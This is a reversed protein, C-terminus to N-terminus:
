SEGDGPVEELWSDVIADIRIGSGGATLDLAM